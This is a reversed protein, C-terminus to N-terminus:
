DGRQNCQADKVLHKIFEDVTANFSQGTFELSDEWLFGGDPSSLAGYVNTHGMRPGERKEGDVELVAEAAAVDRVLQFCGKSKNELEKRVRIAAPNLGKVYITTIDVLPGAAFLFLLLINMGELTVDHALFPV